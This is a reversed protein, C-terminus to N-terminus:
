ACQDKIINNKFKKLAELFSYSNRQDPELYNGEAWENWAKIFIIQEEPKNLKARDFCYQLSKLFYAPSADVIAQGNIGSRPTHDWNPSTSPYLNIKNDIDKYNNSEAVESHTYLNKLKFSRYKFNIIRYGTILKIISDIPKRKVWMFMHSPSPPTLADFGANQYDYNLHQYAVFHIGDLGEKMALENWLELIRFSDKYYGDLSPIYVPIIVRHYAEKTIINKSYIPNLGVRM